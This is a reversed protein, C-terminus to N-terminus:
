RPFAFYHSLFYSDMVKPVEEGFFGSIVEDARCLSPVKTLTLKLNHLKYQNYFFSNNIDFTIIDTYNSFILVSYEYQLIRFFNLLM